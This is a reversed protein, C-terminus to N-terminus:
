MLHSVVALFELEVPVQSRQGEYAVHVWIHLDVCMCIILSVLLLNQLYLPCVCVGTVGASPLLFCIWPVQQGAWRALDTLAQRLFFFFILDLDPPSYSLFIGSCIRWSRHIYHVHMYTQLCVCVSYAHTYIGTLVWVSYACVNAAEPETFWHPQCQLTPLFKQHPKKGQHNAWDQSEQAATDVPLSLRCPLSAINLDQDCVQYLSKPLGQLVADMSLSGNQRLSQLGSPQLALWRSSDPSGWM